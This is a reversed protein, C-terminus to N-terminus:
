LSRIQQLTEGAVAELVADGSERLRLLAGHLTAKQPVTLALYLRVLEPALADADRVHNHSRLVARLVELTAPDDPPRAVLAAELRVLDFLPGDARARERRAVRWRALFPSALMVLVLAGAKEM